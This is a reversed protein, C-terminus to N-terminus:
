NDVAGESIWSRFLELDAEPIRAGGRPMRDGLIPEGNPGAGELKWILYSTDPRAPVVEFMGRSAAELGPGFVSEYTLV